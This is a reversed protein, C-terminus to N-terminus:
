GAQAVAGAPFTTDNILDWAFRVTGGLQGQEDIIRYILEIKEFSFAVVDLPPGGSENDSQMLSTVRTKWTTIKEFEQPEGSSTVNFIQCKGLSKGKAAHRALIPTARDLPKTISIDAFAPKATPPGPRSLGWSVDLVRITNPYNAATAEGPVDPIKMYIPM